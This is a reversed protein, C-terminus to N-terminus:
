RPNIVQKISKRSSFHKIPNIRVRPIVLNSDRFPIFFLDSTACPIAGLLEQHHRKSEGICGGPKASEHIVNEPFPKIVEHDYVYVVNQDIAVRHLLM